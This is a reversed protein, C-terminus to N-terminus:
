LYKVVVQQFQVSRVVTGLADIISQHSRAAIRESRLVQRLYNSAEIGWIQSHSVRLFRRLLRDPLDYLLYLGFRRSCGFLTMGVFLLRPLRGRRAFFLRRLWFGLDVPM